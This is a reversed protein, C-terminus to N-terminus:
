RTNTGAQPHACACPNLVAAAATPFAGTDGISNGGAAERMAKAETPELARLEAWAAEAAAIVGAEEDPFLLSLIHKETKTNPAKGGSWSPMITKWEENFNPPSGGTDTRDFGSGIYAGKGDPRVHLHMAKRTEMKLGACLLPPKGEAEASSCCKESHEAIIQADFKPESREMARALREGNKPHAMFKVMDVPGASVRQPQILPLKGEAVGRLAKRLFPFCGEFAARPLAATRLFPPSGSTVVDVGCVIEEPGIRQDCGFLATHLAGEVLGELYLTAELTRRRAGAPPAHFTPSFPADRLLAQMEATYSLPAAAARSRRLAASKGKRVSPGSKPVFTEDGRREHEVIRKELDRTASQVPLWAGSASASAPPRFTSAPRLLMWGQVGGPPGGLPIHVTQSFPSRFRITVVSLCVSVVCASWWFGNEWKEVDMDQELRLQVAASPQLELPPRPRLRSCLVRERLLLEDSTWLLDEDHTSDGEAEVSESMHLNVVDAWKTGDADVLIREIRVRTWRGECDVAEGAQNFTAEQGELEAHCGAVLPWVPTRGAVLPFTLAAQALRKAARARTQLRDGPHVATILVAEEEEALPPLPPLPVHQQAGAADEGAAHPALQEAAADSAPQWRAPPPPPPAPQVV